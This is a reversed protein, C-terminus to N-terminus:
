LPPAFTTTCKTSGGLVFSPERRLSGILRGANRSSGRERGSSRRHPGHLGMLKRFEPDAVVDLDDRRGGVALDHLGRLASEKLIRSIGICEERNCSPGLDYSVLDVRQVQQVPEHGSLWVVRTDPPEARPDQLVQSPFAVRVRAVVNGADIGFGYEGFADALERRSGLEM